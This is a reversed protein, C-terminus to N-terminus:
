PLTNLVFGGGGSKTCNCGRYSLGYYSYVGNCKGGGDNGGCSDCALPSPSDPCCACHTFFAAHLPTRQACLGDILLNNTPNCSTDKCAPPSEGKSEPCLDSPNPLEGGDLTCTCGQYAIGGSGNGKCIGGGIDGGCSSCAVEETEECCGCLDFGEQSRIYCIGQASAGVCSEGSCTDTRM